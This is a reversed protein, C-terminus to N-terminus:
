LLGRVVLHVGLVLLGWFFFRRFAAPSVRRRAAQGLVMGGLAAALALLSPGALSVGFVGGGTLSLGLAVTSVLFALGLAQILEDKEFGLAQLYPVAPIVFIGTAGTVVGTTFGILPSLWGELRPPVTLHLRTLGTLAYVVLALGLAASAHRAWEGTLLGSGAYTGLCIGLMMTWLRQLLVFLRPGLAQWVNTVLSPVILIAAAQAPPLVLSLLGVSVTPLGLGIVGKVFGALLFAAAIFALVPVTDPSLDM